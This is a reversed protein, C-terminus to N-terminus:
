TLQEMYTTQIVDFPSSGIFYPEQTDRSKIHTLYSAWQEGIEQGILALGKANGEVSLLRRATLLVLLESHEDPIEAVMEYTDNAQPASTWAEEMTLVRGTPDSSSGTCRLIQGIRSGAATPGTIEFLAGAYGNLATEHPFNVADSSTDADLRMQSTTLTAQSPLTGKTMAAPIKACEIDLDPASSFGDLTIENTATFRWGGIQRRTARHIELGRAAGTGGYKRVSALKMVWPPLRYSFSNGYVTRATTGLLVFRHNVYSKDEEVAKRIMSRLQSNMVQAITKGAADLKDGAVSDIALKVREIGQSLRM